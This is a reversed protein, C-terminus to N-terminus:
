QANRSNVKYLEVLALTLLGIVAIGLSRDAIVSWDAIGALALLAEISVWSSLANTITKLYYAGV